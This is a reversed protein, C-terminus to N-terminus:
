KRMHSDKPQARTCECLDCISDSLPVGLAAAVTEATRIARPSRSVLAADVDEGSLEAALADAQREGESTLGPCAHQAFRGGFDSDGHRVFLLRTRNM